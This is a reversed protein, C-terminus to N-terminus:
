RPLALPDSLYSDLSGGWIVLAIPATIALLAMGGLVVVPAGIMSVMMQTMARNIVGLALNYLVSIVVFPGALTFGLGICHAAQATAWEASDHAAPALGVPFLDYSEILLAAVKVHLGAAVALALAAVALLHSVVPQPEGAVGFLQALSISQAIITGAIQLAMVLLRLGLGLMLGIAAEAIIAPITPPVPHPAVVPGVVMTFALAVGLRVRPPLTAEGFAPLLAVMGAVRCFIVLLGAVHPGAVEMLATLEATM